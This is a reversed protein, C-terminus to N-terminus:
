WIERERERKGKGGMGVDGEELDSGREEERKWMRKM